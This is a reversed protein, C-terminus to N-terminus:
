YPSRIPEQWAAEGERQERGEREVLYSSAGM